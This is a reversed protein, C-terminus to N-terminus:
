EGGLTTLLKLIDKDEPHEQLWQALIKVAKENKGQEHYMEAVTKIITANKKRDLLEDLLSDAKEPNKMEYLISAEKVLVHATIGDGTPFDKLFEIEDLAEEYREEKMLADVLTFLVAYYNTMMNECVSNLSEPPTTLTTNLEFTTHFLEQTSEIDMEKESFEFVLGRLRLTYGEMRSPYVTSAFVVTRETNEVVRSLIYDSIFIIEGSETKRPKLARIEEEDMQLPLGKKKLFIINDAVNLLSLNVVLVDERVGQSQLYWAPYTDNDGNTILIGHSPVSLLMNKNYDLLLTFNLPSRFHLSVERKWTENVRSFDEKGKWVNLFLEPWNFTSFLTIFRHTSELVKKNEMLSFHDAQFPAPELFTLMTSARSVIGDGETEEPLSGEWPTIGCLSAFNKNEELRSYNHWCLKGRNKRIWEIIESHPQLEKAQEGMGDIFYFRYPTRAKPISDQHALNSGWYPAGISVIAPSIDYQYLATDAAYRTFILAGLGFAVVDLRFEGYEKHLRKLEGSLLSGNEEISRDNPYIFTWVPNKYGEDALFERLHDLYRGFHLDGIVLLAKPTREANLIGYKEPIQILRYEGGHDIRAYITDKTYWSDALPLYSNSVKCAFRGREEPFPASILVPKQFVTTDPSITIGTSQVKFGEKFSEERKKHVELFITTTETVAGAPISIRMNKQAIVAGEPGITFPKSLHNCSLSLCLAIIILINKM